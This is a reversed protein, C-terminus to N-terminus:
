KNVIVLMLGYIDKCLRLKKDNGVSNLNTGM